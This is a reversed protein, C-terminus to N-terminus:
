LPWHVSWVRLLSFFFRGVGVISADTRLLLDVTYLMGADMVSRKLKQFEKQHIETWVFPVKPSLLEEMSVVKLSFGPVFDRFYNALGLVSRLGSRDVPCALSALGDVKASDLCIGAESVVHGLFVVSTVGVVCKEPNVCLNFERFRGLLLRVRLLLEGESDAYVIVDDQYAECVGHVLGALVVETMLWQFYAPANKLGFPLRVFEFVGRQCIFATLYRSEADMLVQHYGKRLDFKAYFKHGSVSELLLKLNPIPFLDSESVANVERFDVCFRFDKGKARVVVVQQAISSTSPVIFGMDLLKGVSEEIFKSVVASQRRPPSSRPLVVGPKLRISMPKLKAPEKSLVGSLVEPFEDKLVSLSESVESGAAVMALLDFGGEESEEPAVELVRPLGRGAVECLIPWLGSGRVDNWGVLVDVPIDLVGLTLRVLPAGDVQLDVVAFRDVQVPDGGGATAVRWSRDGVVVQVKAGLRALFERSVLSYSSMSDLGVRAPIGYVSGPVMCVDHVGQAVLAVGALPPSPPAGKV